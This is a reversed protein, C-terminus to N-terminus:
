AVKASAKIQVPLVLAFDGRGEAELVIPAVPSNVKLKIQKEGQFQRLADIMYRLDFGFYITNEGSIAVETSYNGSAATISLKGGSFYVHTKDTSLVLGNM